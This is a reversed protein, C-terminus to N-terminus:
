SIKMLNFLIKLWDLDNVPLKQSMAWAYLKNVDWYKLYPSEKNKDYDKKYENNAKAYWHNTRFIGGRIRKEVMLLMDIGTLLELDVKTKKLAAEWALGPASFVKCSRTSLNRFM